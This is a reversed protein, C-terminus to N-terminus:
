KLIQRQMREEIREPPRETGTERDDKAELLAVDLECNRLYQFREIEIVVYRRKGYIGM